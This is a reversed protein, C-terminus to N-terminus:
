VDLRVDIDELEKRDEVPVGVVQEPYKGIISRGGTDGELNFLAEFYGKSFICPNGSKGQYSTCIIKTQNEEFCNILRVITEVTLFPQDCVSFLIGAVGPALELIKEMGLHISGSIGNEPHPNLVTQFGMEEAARKIAEYQTVVVVPAVKLKPEGKGEGISVYASTQEQVSRIKEFAHLYLPKGEIEDLLKIGGYRISNGAALLCVGLMGIGSNSEVKEM